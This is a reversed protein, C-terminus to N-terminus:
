QTKVKNDLTDLRDKEQLTNNARDNFLQMISAIYNEKIYQVIEEKMAETVPYRLTKATKVAELPDATSWGEVETPRAFIGHIRLFPQYVEVPTLTSDEEFLNVGFHNAQIYGANGSVKAALSTDQPGGTEVIIHNLHPYIKSYKRTWCYTENSGGFKLHRFYRAQEHNIIPATTVDDVSTGVRLDQQNELGILEPIDHVWMNKYIDTANYTNVNRDNLLLPNGLYTAQRLEMPKMVLVGPDQELLTHEYKYKLWNQRIVAARAQDIWRGVQRLTVPDNINGDGARQLRVVHYIM